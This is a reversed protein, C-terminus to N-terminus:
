EAETDSYVFFLFSGFVAGPLAPTRPRLGRFASPSRRRHCLACGKTVLASILSRLVASIWFIVIERIECRM